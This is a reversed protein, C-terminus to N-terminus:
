DEGILTCGKNLLKISATALLPLFYNLYYHSINATKYPTLQKLKQSNLSHQKKNSKAKKQIFCCSNQLITEKQLM